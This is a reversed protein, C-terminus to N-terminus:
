DFLLNVANDITEKVTISTFLSSVGYSILLRNTASM